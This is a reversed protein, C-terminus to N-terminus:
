INCRESIITHYTAGQKSMIRETSFAGVLCKMVPLQRKYRTANLIIPASQLVNDFIVSSCGQVFYKAVDIIKAFKSLFDRLWVGAGM